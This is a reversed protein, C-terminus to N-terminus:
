GDLVLPRDGSQCREWNAMLADRHTRAWERVASRLTAPLYGALIDLTAIACKAQTESTNRHLLVHFHPPNHDYSYMRVVFGNGDHILSSPSVTHGYNRITGRHTEAHEPTSLNPVDISISNIEGTVDMADFQAHIFDTNWNPPHGFSFVASNNQKAWTMGVAATGLFSVGELDGPARTGPYADWPNSQNLSNIFRWEDKYPDGILITSLSQTGDALLTSTLPLPSALLLDRRIRRVARLTALTLLACALLRERSIPTELLCSLENLFIVLSNV